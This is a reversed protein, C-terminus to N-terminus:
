IMSIEYIRGDNDKNSPGTQSSFYLRQYSPNFAPGCIESDDQGIIQLVPIPIGISDLLVLQMDDGDEAVLVDGSATITINDVGKLEPNESTGADYLVDIYNNETDYFWVRNDGKTTFYIKGDSWSIGEGGNFDTSTDIQYRTPETEASPDPVQHWIIQQLGNIEVVEAIELHGSDLHPLPRDPIFRYFGGDEIDETLYIIQNLPDIAVAEHEFRGLAPRPIASNNGFPDCEYVLGRETEECSLWTNWPTKGGACNMTTGNLISYADIVEAKSNFRIAGVSGAGNDLESNSTYIWGGDATAFCAGGDPAHHFLYDSNPTVLHDSHAIQRSKFGDPLRIGNEDPENLHLLNKLDSYLTQTQTTQGISSNVNGLFFGVFCKSGNHLFHRRNLQKSFFM